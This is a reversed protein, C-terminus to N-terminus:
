IQLLYGSVALWKIKMLTICVNFHACSYSFACSLIIRLYLLRSTLNSFLELEAFTKKNYLLEKQHVIMILATTLLRINILDVQTRMVIPLTGTEGSIYKIQIQNRFIVCLLCFISSLFMSVPANLRFQRNDTRISDTIYYLLHVTGKPICPSNQSQM